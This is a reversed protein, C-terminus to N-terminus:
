KNNLTENLKMTTKITKVKIPLKILKDSLNRQTQLSESILNKLESCKLHLRKRLTNQMNFHLHNLLLAKFLHQRIIHKSIKCSFFGNSNQQQISYLM